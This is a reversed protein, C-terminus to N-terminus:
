CMAMQVSILNEGIKVRNQENTCTRNLESTCQVALKEGDNASNKLRIEASSMKRSKSKARKM